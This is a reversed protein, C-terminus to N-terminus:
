GNYKGICTQVPLLLLIVGIIIIGPWGFRTILIVVIGLLAFPTILAAFFFVSFTEMANFDSSLMNIIKGIEQSKATYQSLISLKKCM